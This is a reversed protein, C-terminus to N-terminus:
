NLRPVVNAAETPPPYIFRDDIARAQRIIEHDIPVGMIHLLKSKREVHVLQRPSTRYKLSVEKRVYSYLNGQRLAAMENRTASLSLGLQTYAQQCISEPRINHDGMYDKVAYSLRSELDKLQQVNMILPIQEHKFIKKHQQIILYYIKKVM